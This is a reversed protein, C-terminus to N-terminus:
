ILFKGEKKGHNFVMMEPKQWNTQLGMANGFGQFHQKVQDMVRLPGEITLLTNDAFLSIKIKYKFPNKDKEM